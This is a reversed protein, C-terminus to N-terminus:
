HGVSLKHNQHSFLLVNQPHLPPPPPLSIAEGDMAVFDGSSETCRCRHFDVLYVINGDGLEKIDDDTM